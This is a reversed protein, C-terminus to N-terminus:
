SAAGIAPCRFRKTAQVNWPLAVSGEAPSPASTWTPPSVVPTINSRQVIPPATVAPGSAAAGLITSGTLHRSGTLTHRGDGGHPVVNTSQLLVLELQAIQEFRPAFGERAM